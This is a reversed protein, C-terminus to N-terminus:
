EVTMMGAAKRVADEYTVDNTLIEMERALLLATSRNRVPLTRGPCVRGGIVAQTELHLGNDTRKVVFSAGEGAGSQFEVQALRGPKMTAMEVRRLILRLARDTNRCGFWLEQAFESPLQEVDWQLRSALWGAFLM